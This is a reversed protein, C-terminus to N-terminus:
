LSPCSRCGATTRLAATGSPRILASSSRWVARLRPHPAPSPPPALPALQSYRALTRAPAVPSPSPAALAVPAVPAAPPAVPAGPAPKPPAVVPAPTFSTGPGGATVASGAIFGDHVVRRWFTDVDKFAQGSADRISWGGAGAFARTWYDKVIQMGRRDGQATFLALVEHASRGEYLPAVLPQMLTVTGDFARADGWSELAHAAPLSWHALHATEDVHTGLYTVLGVKSLREAFKLDAPATFVPNGGLIVLVEVQGGDMATTLEALSAHRDVPMAEVSAAYTVTADINGLATNM